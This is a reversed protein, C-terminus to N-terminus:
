PGPPSPSAVDRPRDSGRAPTGLKRLDVAYLAYREQPAGNVESFGLLTKLRRDLPGGAYVM